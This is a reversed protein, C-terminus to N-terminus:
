FYTLFFEFIFYISFPGLYPVVPPVVKKLRERYAFFNGEGANGNMLLAMNEFMEFAKQPLLEWTKYLRHIASNQLAAIVLM